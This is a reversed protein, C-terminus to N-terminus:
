ECDGGCEECISIPRRNALEITPALQTSGDLWGAQFEASRMGECPLEHFGKSFGEHYDPSQNVM